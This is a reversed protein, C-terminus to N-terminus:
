QIQRKILNIENLIRINMFQLKSQMASMSNQTMKGFGLWM